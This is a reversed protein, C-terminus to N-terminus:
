SYQSLNNYIVVNSCLKTTSVEFNSIIKDRRSEILTLESLGHFIQERYQSRRISQAWVRAFNNMALEANRNEQRSPEKSEVETEVGSEDFVEDVEVDEDEIAQVFSFEKEQLLQDTLRDHFSNMKEVMPHEPYAGSISFVESTVSVM